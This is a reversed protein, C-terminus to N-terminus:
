WDGHSHLCRVVTLDGYKPGDDDVKRTGFVRNAAGLLDYVDRVGCVPEEETSLGAKSQADDACVERCDSFAQGSFKSVTVGWAGTWRSAFRGWARCLEWKRGGSIVTCSELLPEEVIVRGGCEIGAFVSWKWHHVAFWQSEHYVEVLLRGCVMGGDRDGYVPMVFDLGAEIPVDAQADNLWYGDAGWHSVAVARNYASLLRAFRSACDIHLGQIDVRSSFCVVCWGGEVKCPRDGSVSFFRHTVSPIAIM